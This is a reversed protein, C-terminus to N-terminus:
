DPQSNQILEKSREWMLYQPSIRLIHCLSMLPHISPLRVGNEIHRIAGESVGCAAALRTPSMGVLERAWSLRHCVGDALEKQRDIESKEVVM